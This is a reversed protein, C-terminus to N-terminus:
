AHNLDKRHKFVYLLLGSISLLWGTVGFAIVANQMSPLLFNLLLWELAVALGLMIVFNRPKHALYFNLWISSLSIGIMAFGMWGLLSSATMYAQGFIISILQEGFIFYLLTLAGSATVIIVATRILLRDPLNGEALMRAIRPFMVVVAVGPLLAIVRRLLVLSAYAGALEGSLNRNVWILDISTLSIFAIYAVLAYASLKWGERILGAPAPESKMWVSTGLFQFAALIGVLWGFPFAIIAGHLSLGYNVLIIALLLRGVATILRSFGYPLFREQGQLTGIGIPRLTSLFILLSSIQITWNPLNLMLSITNSFLFVLTSLALGLWFSALLYSRFIAPISDNQGRGRAEAVFRSVVPQFVGSATIYVLIVSNLTQLIAFDSPILVRGMWFHFAFDVVNALGDLLFLSITQFGFESQVQPLPITGKL